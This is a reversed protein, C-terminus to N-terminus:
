SSGPRCPRLFWRFRSWTKRQLKTHVKPTVVCTRGRSTACSRSRAARRPPRASARLAGPSGSRRARCCTCVLGRLASRTSLNFLKTDSAKPALSLLMKLTREKRTDSLHTREAQVQFPTRAGWTYARPAMRRSGPPGRGRASSGGRRRARTRRCGQPRRRCGGAPRAGRARPASPLM